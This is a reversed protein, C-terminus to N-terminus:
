KTQCKFDFYSMIINPKDKIVQISARCCSILFRLSLACQWSITKTKPTVFSRFFPFLNLINVKSKQSKVKHTM